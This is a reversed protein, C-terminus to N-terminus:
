TPSTKSQIRESLFSGQPLMPFGKSTTTVPIAPTVIRKSYYTDMLSYQPTSDGFYRPSQRSGSPTIHVSTCAFVIPTKFHVNATSSLSVVETLPTRSSWAESVNKGSTMDHFTYSSFSNWSERLALDKLRVLADDLLLYEVQSMEQSESGFEISGRGEVRFSFDEKGRYVAFTVDGDVGPFVDTEIIGLLHAIDNLWAVIKLARGSLPQGAGYHWGSALKRLKEIKASTDGGGTSRQSYALFVQKAYFPTPNLLTKLRM